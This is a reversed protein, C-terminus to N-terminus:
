ELFCFNLLNKPSRLEKMAEFIKKLNIDFGFGLRTIEHTRLAIHYM